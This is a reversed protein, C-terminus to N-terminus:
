SLDKRLTTNTNLQSGPIYFDTGDYYLSLTFSTGAAVSLLSTTVAVAGAKIAVAGGGNINLTANNVAFGDSFTIAL